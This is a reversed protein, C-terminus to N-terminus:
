RVTKSCIAEMAFLAFNSRVSRLFHGKSIHNIDGWLLEMGFFSSFNSIRKQSLGEGGGGRLRSLRVVSLDANSFSRQREAPPALLTLWSSLLYTM